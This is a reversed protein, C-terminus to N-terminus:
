SISGYLNSKKFNFFTESRSVRTSMYKRIYLMKWFLSFWDNKSADKLALQCKYIVVEVWSFFTGWSNSFSQPDKPSSGWNQNDKLFQNRLTRWLTKLSRWIQPVKSSSKLFKTDWRQPDKSSSKQKTWSYFILNFKM